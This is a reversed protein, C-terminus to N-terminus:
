PQAANKQKANMDAYPEFFLGWFLWGGVWSAGYCVLGIFM